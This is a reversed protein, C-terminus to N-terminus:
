NGYIWKVTRSFTGKVPNWETRDGAKYVACYGLGTIQAYFDQVIGSVNPKQGMYGAFNDQPRGTAPLAVCAMTLTRESATTTGIDQLLKGASRGIVTLEAVVDQPHVDNIEIRENVVNPLCNSVRDDFSYSYKITGASPVHEVSEAQPLV